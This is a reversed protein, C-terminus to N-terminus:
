LLEWEETADTALSINKAVREDEMRELRDIDALLERYRGREGETLDASSVVTDPELFLRSDDEATIMMEAM